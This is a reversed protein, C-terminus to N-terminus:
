SNPYISKKLEFFTDQFHNSGLVDRQGFFDQFAACLNFAEQQLEHKLILCTDTESIQKAPSPFSIGKREYLYLPIADELSIQVLPNSLDASVKHMFSKYALKLLARAGLRKMWIKHTVLDRAWKPPQQADIWKRIEPWEDHVSFSM